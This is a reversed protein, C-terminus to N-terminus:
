RNEMLHEEDPLKESDDQEENSLEESDDQEEDSPKESNDQEEDSLEESGDKNKQPKESEKPTEADDEDTEDLWAAMLMDMSTEEVGAEEEFEAQFEAEIEDKLIDRETELKKQYLYVVLNRRAQTSIKESKKGPVQELNLQYNQPIGAKKM